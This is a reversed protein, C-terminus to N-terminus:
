AQALREKVVDGVSDLAKPVSSSKPGLTEVLEFVALILGSLAEAFRRRADIDPLGGSQAARISFVVLEAIGEILLDRSSETLQSWGPIDDAEDLTSVVVQIVATMKDDGSLGDDEIADIDDVVGVVTLVTAPLWDWEDPVAALIVSQLIGLVTPSFLSQVIQNSM